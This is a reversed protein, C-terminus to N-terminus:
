NDAHIPQYMVSTPMRYSTPAGVQRILYPGGGYREIAAKGASDATDFSEIFKGDYFVVFKGMYHKKMETLSTEYSKINEKLSAVVKVESEESMTEGLNSQKSQLIIM